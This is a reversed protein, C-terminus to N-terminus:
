SRIQRHRHGRLEPLTAAAATAPGRWLNDLDDLKLAIDAIEATTGDTRTFRGVDTVQHGAVFTALPQSLVASFWRPKTGIAATLRRVAM